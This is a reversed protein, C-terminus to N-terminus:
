CSAKILVQHQDWHPETVSASNLGLSRGEDSGTESFDMSFLPAGCTARPGLGAWRPDPGAQLTVRCFQGQLHPRGKLEPEVDVWDWTLLYHVQFFRWINVRVFRGKLLFRFLRFLHSPVASQVLARPDPFVQHKLLDEATQLACTFIFTYYQYFGM